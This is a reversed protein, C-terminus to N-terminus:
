WCIKMEVLYDKENYTYFVWFIGDEYAEGLSYDNLLKNWRNAHIVQAKSSGIGIKDPGFRFEEGKIIYIHSYVGMPNQTLRFTISEYIMDFCNLDNPAIESPEGYLQRIIEETFVGSEKGLVADYYVHYKQKM